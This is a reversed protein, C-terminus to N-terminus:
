SGHGLLNPCHWCPRRAMPIFDSNGEGLHTALCPQRVEGALPDIIEETPLRGFSILRVTGPSDVVCHCLTVVMQRVVFVFFALEIDITM